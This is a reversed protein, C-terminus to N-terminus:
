CTARGLDDVVYMAIRKDERDRRGFRDFYNKYLDVLEKPTDSLIRLVDEVRNVGDFRQTMLRAWLFNGQAHSMLYDEARRFHETDTEDLDDQQSCFRQKLDHLKATLFRM